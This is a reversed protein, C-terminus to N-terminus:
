TEDTEDTEDGITSWEEGFRAVESAAVSAV